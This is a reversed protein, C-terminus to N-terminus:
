TLAGTVLAILMVAAGLTIVLAYSRVLGSQVTRLAGGGARVATAAGNVAGDIITRDFWAALDFLKRGPGGMFAAYTEDLRWARALIPREVLAPDGQGRLYMAMASGIGLLSGAIALGALVWKTGGAFGLGAENGFVSPELWHELHHWWKTFPLNLFGAVMALGALVVLPLTMTWPSEHPHYERRAAVEPGVEDAVEGGDFVPAHAVHSPVPRTVAAARRVAGDAAEADTLEARVQALRAEAEPVAGKAATLASQAQELGAQAQDAAAQAATIVEEEADAVAALAEHAEALAAQAPPVAEAKDTLAERAAELSAESEVLAKSASAVAVEAAEVRVAWAADVEAITADAYRLRGFFTMVVQRTMYFATLVATVLGILWLYLNENYAFVLIEDKSWFGAFPPVGAIALWGVIFTGATFPMLKALGGMRRMDQEDHMGHIVSGSGLFLLAKFFAHTIMHFIAAVYAGTGVALFMYGLQSVTSYALVKKIDNQAVAVTAAFLATLAGTWAIINPAWGYAEAIIPNMRTMLFVGATVMTAAHILASVPTPGAMADPLWVYIPLQASKGIAGVFLLLVIATATVGALGSAGALVDVYRLSGISTFILFMAVLFGWDGIRNTVFAKKGATANAPDTFWFSILFYSCAGVGEWGLFTVLLNDGLVLMLMSFAFLNLYVFFKSFNEDGHMYGISYLHILTAVFTVFLCMTIALPDVFFGIDVSFSGAPIWSFLTQNFFREGSDEGLLGLYVVVTALFSGGMAMTALWGALPEGIRRGLFVLTLFGALPLAPILWVAELM